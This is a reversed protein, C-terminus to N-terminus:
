KVRLGSVVGCHLMGRLIWQRAKLPSWIVMFFCLAAKMGAMLLTKLRPRGAKILQMAHTQGYRFKRARLWGFNARAPPVGEYITADKAYEITAGAKHALSFFDTDEGGSVGLDERFHLGHLAPAGTRMLVNGCYGTIIRNKVWVPRTSHYDGDLLWKPARADYVALVPGLVVDAQSEKQKNTIAVLWHPTVVEDDDVFAFFDATVANLCANRAISINRAPAHIYNVNLGHAEAAQAVLVQASPEDDNDAIIIRITSNFPIELLAISALTNAVHARRFTCICIDITTPKSM